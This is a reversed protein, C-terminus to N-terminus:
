PSAKGRGKKMGQDEPPPIKEGKKLREVSSQHVTPIRKTSNKNDPKVILVLTDKGAYRYTDHAMVTAPYWIMNQQFKIRSGVPFDKPNLGLPLGKVM